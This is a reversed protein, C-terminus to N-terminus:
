RESGVGVREDTGGNRYSKSEVETNERGRKIETIEKRWKGEQLCRSMDLLLRVVRGLSVKAVAGRSSVRTSCALGHLQSQLIFQSRM